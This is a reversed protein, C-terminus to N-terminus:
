GSTIEVEFINEMDVTFTLGRNCHINERKVDVSISITDVKYGRKEGLEACLKDHASKLIEKERKTLNSQGLIDTIM